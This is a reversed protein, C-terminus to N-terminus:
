AAAGEKRLPMGMEVLFALAEEDTHASTVIVIDM